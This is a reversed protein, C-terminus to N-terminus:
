TFMESMNYVLSTNFNSFIIEELSDCGKFLSNLDTILSSDFYTFDISTVNKM